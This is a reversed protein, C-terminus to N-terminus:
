HSRNEKCAEPYGTGDYREHHSLVLVAADRLFPIRSVLDYGIQVHSRVTNWEEPTFKGPKSLISDPIALKGIDHLLAGQSLSKLQVESCGM